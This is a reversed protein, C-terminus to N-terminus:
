NATATSGMLVNFHWGIVVPGCGRGSCTAVYYAYFSFNGGVTSDDSLFSGAGYYSSRTGNPNGVFGSFTGHSTLLPTSSNDAAYVTLTNIQTGSSTYRNDLVIRFQNGNQDVAYLQCWGLNKSGCGDATTSYSTQAFLPMSMALLLFLLHKKM